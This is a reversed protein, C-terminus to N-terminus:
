KGAKTVYPAVTLAGEKIAIILTKESSTIESLVKDALRIQGGLLESIVIVANTDGEAGAHVLGRSSGLIIISGSAFIEAGVNLDGLLVLNGRFSYQKGSRITGTLIQTDGDKVTELLKRDQSLPEEVIPLAKKVPAKIEGRKMQYKQLIDEVVLRQEDTFPTDPQLFYSAGQLFGDSELLKEELACSLEKFDTVKTNFYFVLGNRTGKISILNNAM